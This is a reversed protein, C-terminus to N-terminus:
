NGLNNRVSLIAIRESEIVPSSLHCCWDEDVISIQSSSVQWATMEEFHLTTVFRLPLVSSVVSCKIVPIPQREGYYLSEWGEPEPSEQGHLLEISMEVQPFVKISIQAAFDSQSFKTKANFTGSAVVKWGVDALHWRLTVDHEGDGLIDDLIMWRDGLRIVARRHVVALKGGKELSCGGKRFPPLPSKPSKGHRYGYHEGEWYDGDLQPLQENHRLNSKTWNYWLFRSGKEMQDEGDVEITNHAATSKFYHEWPPECYYQFTGTDRLLNVGKYWLDFHLMDAHCPRDRYSHCRIMGWTPRFAIEGSQSGRLTYYGGVHANTSKQEIGECLKDELSAFPELAPKKSSANLAELGFLWILDEDWPGTEFRREGDLLYSMAQVVPRYNLYDCGNLPLILAGDNSGYNPVRGTKLDMMQYIFETALRLRDLLEAPFAYGNIQGLRVAWLYDQLMLRHYNMSHQIYSGDDYIQRQAEEEIVRRGLKRWKEAEKFEPFLVGVTWLGVGESIAHNNKQSRAYAINREIRQAHIAIMATLTAMREPTSHPSNAFGYFAFVWAMIRFAVEQGCKWNPGRQPPNADRWSNILEWFIYPYTEDGTCWYARVLKYAVGFRSPEWILKIDGVDSFDPIDTWHINASAERGNFPNLNWKPPFGIPVEQHEFYKLVGTKIKDVEALLAPHTQGQVALISDRYRSKAESEFFFRVPQKAERAIVNSERRRYALYADPATPIGQKVWHSLSLDDWSCEPFRRKLMGTRRRLEYGSRFLFWNLGFNQILYLADRLIKYRM